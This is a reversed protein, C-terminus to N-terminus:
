ARDPATSGPTIHQVTAPDRAALARAVYTRHCRTYDAEYCLLATPRANVQLALQHLADGQQKLHRMFDRTYQSWDGSEKYADRISKPCGLARLHVYDIGAGRLADTLATKSFGAKRSIPAERVDALLLIGNARLDDLFQPLSRGEYGITFVPPM